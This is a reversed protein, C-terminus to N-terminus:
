VASTVVPSFALCSPVTQAPRRLSLSGLLHRGACPVGVRVEYRLTTSRQRLSPHLVRRQPSPSLFCRM